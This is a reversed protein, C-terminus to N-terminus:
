PNQKKREEEATGLLPKKGKPNIDGGMGVVSGRKQRQKRSKIGRKRGSDTVHRKELIQLMAKASSKSQTAPWGNAASTEHRNQSKRKPAYRPNPPTEETM